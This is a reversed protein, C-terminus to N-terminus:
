IRHEHQAAFTAVVSYGKGTGGTVFIAGCRLWSHAALTSGDPKCVGLYLTSPIGRRRLMLHAAMAGAFCKRRWPMRGSILDVAWRIQELMRADARKEDRWPTEENHKGLLVPAYWKLPICRIAARAAVLLLSAEMLMRQERGSLALFKGLSGPM